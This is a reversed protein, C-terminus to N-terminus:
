WKSDTPMDITQAAVRKLNVATKNLTSQQTIRMARSLKMITIDESEKQKVLDLYVKVDLRDQRKCYSRILVSIRRSEVIHQCLLGLMHYNAPIFHDAPMSNVIRRWEIAAEDDLDYPVDARTIAAVLGSEEVLMDEVSVRGRTRM